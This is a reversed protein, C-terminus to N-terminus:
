PTCCMSRPNTLSATPTGPTSTCTPNIPYVKISRMSPQGTAICTGDAPRELLKSTCSTNGHYEVNCATATRACGCAGCTLTSGDGVVVPVSFTGSCASTGVAPVCMRHGPSIAACLDATANPVCHRIATTAVKTPDTVPAATCAGGSPVRVVWRNYAAITVNNPNFIEVCANNATVNYDAPGDTCSASSGWRWTFNAGACSPDATPTCAGCTCAGDKAEPATHVTQETTGSPCPAGDAPLIVVNSDVVAADCEVAVGGSTGSDSGNGSGGSSSSGSSSSSTGGDASLTGVGSFGCAVLGSALWAVVVCRVRV